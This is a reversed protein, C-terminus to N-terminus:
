RSSSNAASASATSSAVPVSRATTTESDRPASRDSSSAAPWGSRTSFSTKMAGAAGAAARRQRAVARRVLEDLRAVFVDAPALPVAVVPELVVLVEELEEERLAEGLRVRRLLALVRDAPAEVRVGLREDRRLERRAECSSSLTRSSRARTSQGTSTIWPVSSATRGHSTRPARERLEGAALEDHELARAVERVRAVRDLDVQQQAVEDRRSRPRGRQTRPLDRRLRASKM